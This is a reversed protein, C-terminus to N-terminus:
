LSGRPSRKKKRRVLEEGEVVVSDRRGEILSGMNWISNSIVIKIFGRELAHIELAEEPALPGKPWRPRSLAGPM